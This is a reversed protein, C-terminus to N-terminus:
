RPPWTGVPSGVEWEHGFPDVLRGLRWGHQDGVPSEQTAGADLAQTMM